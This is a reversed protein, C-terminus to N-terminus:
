IKMLVCHYRTESLLNHANANFWDRADRITNRGTVGAAGYLDFQEEARAFERRALKKAQQESVEGLSRFQRKVGQLKFSCYFRDQSKVDARQYIYLGPELDIRNRELM